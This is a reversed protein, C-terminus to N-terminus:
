EGDEEKIYARGSVVDDLLAPKYGLREISVCASCDTHDLYYRSGHVHGYIEFYEHDNYFEEGEAPEHRLLYKGDLLIPFPSVLDFGIEQWYTPSKARDHNGMILIKRGNLRQVLSKAKDKGCFAVDGLVYVTDDKTVVSNWNRILGEDMEDRDNFPRDEYKIINTHSFHLDACVFVRGNKNVKM